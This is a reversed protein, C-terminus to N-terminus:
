KSTGRKRYRDWWAQMAGLARMTPRRLVIVDEALLFVGFPIMWFGLIPLFGICGGLILLVAVPIRIWAYGPTQLTEYLRRVPRPLALLFRRLPADRTHDDPITM